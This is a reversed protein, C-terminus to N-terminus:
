VPGSATKTSAIEEADTDDSPEVSVFSFGVGRRTRRIRQLVYEPLDIGGNDSSTVVSATVEYDTPGLPVNDLTKYLVSLDLGERSDFLLANTVSPLSSKPVRCEPGPFSERIKQEADESLGLFRLRFRESRPM